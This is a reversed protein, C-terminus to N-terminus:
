RAANELREQVPIRALSLWGRDIVRFRHSNLAIRRGLGVATWSRGGEHRREKSAPHTVYRVDGGSTVRRTESQAEGNVNERFGSVNRAFSGIKLRGILRDALATGDAVYGLATHTKRIKRFNLGNSAMQSPPVSVYGRHKGVCDSRWRSRHADGRKRVPHAILLVSCKGVVVKGESM